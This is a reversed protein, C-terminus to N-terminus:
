GFGVNNYSRNLMSYSLSANLWRGIATNYSVTVAPHIKKDYVQGYLLLGAFNKENIHYNGSLYIKTNLWSRYSGNRESVAFQKGISDFTKQASKEITTSDNIFDKLNVGSFSVSAGPNDSIFNKTNEKWKIFGLDIVSASFSWKDNLKYNGGLDIAFGSNKTNFLYKTASFNKNLRSNTDLGSTYIAIDSKATLDFNQVGTTLTVDTKKSYINEQGMLYKFRGGVTLKDNLDRSYGLSVDTYHMMDVGFNFKQETGIIGDAGNGNILVNMFDKPYRVRFNMNQSLNFSFYNKKKVRFGFTVLDVNLATTLYNNKKLKSLMNDLDLYTQGQSNQTILDKPKFGSNSLNFYLSPLPFPPM